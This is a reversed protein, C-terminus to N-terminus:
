KLVVKYQNTTIQSTYEVKATFCRESYAKLPVIPGLWLPKVVITRSKRERSLYDVSLEVGRLSTYVTKMFRFAAVIEGEVSDMRGFSCWGDTKGGAITLPSLSVQFHYM